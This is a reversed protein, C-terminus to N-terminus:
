QGSGAPGIGLIDIVAIQTDQADSAGDAKPIVALVQSGVTQGEVAHQFGKSMTSLTVFQPSADWTTEAVSKDTWNVVTYNLLVPADGTVKEGDGRKLVQVKQTTPAAGDPVIVGPRGGPARVVAPMGWGSNYVLAGNAAGLYVRRVDLVAILSDDAALGLSQAGTPAVGGPAIAVAIRSGATACHLADGFAPFSQVWQSLPMARSQDGDYPTSILTKGTQASVLSVDLVIMQDDRDIPVTGTGATVDAFETHATHFPTRVQVHPVSTESGTVSVLDM